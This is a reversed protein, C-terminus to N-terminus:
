NLQQSFDIGSNKKAEELMIRSLHNHIDVLQAENIATKGQAIQIKGNIILYDVPSIRTNFVLAALPDSLSGAYEVRDMSFLALDASKGVAIQGIDDRGLVAAGGRTAMRLVDRASLWKSDDRLRSLLMANRIEVLLNSSDNSASGDVALSVNVGADLMEKVRAFGSGLRMNSSPCHSVGSNASGLFNVEDINLHIAHAFWSAANVWDLEQVYQFPRKGYTEICFTEEDLTEALHTHIRLQYDRAYAATQRMLEPTVSFPSCPALAIRIMAGKSTDHFKNVLRETDKQIEEESQIVDAPPLGGDPKGLSMSGRTPQFRFNLEQAAAIEADILKPGAKRPFLYLHDTSTTTGTNMLELIATKASIYVGEETLERWLEYHAKLWDFLGSNQMRPINRTLTQYFHHHTNIFGPLIVMNAADIVRDASGTYPKPGVSKIENDKILIHGGSFEEKSDNMTAILLPNKIHITSM